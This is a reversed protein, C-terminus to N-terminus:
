QVMAFLGLNHRILEVYEPNLEILITQKGLKVAVEGTTGCGGFPDLVVGNAPCGALICTEVLKTPFTAFHAAAYPESQISWVDRKNVMGDLTNGARGHYMGVDCNFATEGTDKRKVVKWKEDSGRNVSLREPRDYGNGSGHENVGRESIAKHDYFYRASKTLLFIYEHSRTCRDTVSEPMPAPKAWIIDQRLYWGREQLAFALRWPIGCLDKPKIGEGMRATPIGEGITAAHTRQKGNLNEANMGGRGSGAYSDGIVLWCTGSPKLVRRVEDFVTAMKDIYEFPSSELGMQRDIRTAGCKGCLNRYQGRHPELDQGGTITSNPGGRTTGKPEIHDCESEGGEWTGTGYDRLGWYPPSTVCCDVSDSPLTRLTELADGCYLQVMPNNIVLTM